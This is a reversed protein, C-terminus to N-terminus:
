LNLLIVRCVFINNPKGFPAVIEPINSLDRLFCLRNSCRQNWAVVATLPFTPRNGPLSPAHLPRSFWLPARGAISQRNSIKGEVARYTYASHRADRPDIDLIAEVLPTNDSLVQYSYLLYTCYQTCVYIRQETFNHVSSSSDGSKRCCKREVTSELFKIVLRKIM